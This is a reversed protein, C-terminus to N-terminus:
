INISCQHMTSVLPSRRTPYSVLTFAFSKYKNRTNVKSVEMIEDLASKRKRSEDKKKKMTPQEAKTLKLPNSAPSSRYINCFIGHSSQDAVVVNFQVFAAFKRMWVGLLHFLHFLLM